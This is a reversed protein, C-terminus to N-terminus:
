HLVTKKLEVAAFNDDFLTFDHFNPLAVYRMLTRKNNVLRVDRRSRKSMLLKGYLSNCTLKRIDREIASATTRRKETNFHIFPALWKEQRFSVGRKIFFTVGLEAYLKLTTGHVVYNQKPSFDLILKKASSFPNFAAHEKQRSSFCAIPPVKLEPAPPYDSLIEHLMANDPIYLNCELMYGKTDDPSLTHVDFNEIEEHSMWRYDGVPLPGSMIKGYLNNADWYTIYSSPQDSRFSPLEKNNARVCRHSCFSVGGRISSEIMRYMEPDTILELKQGTMLLAAELALGPLSFFATAELGYYRFTKARFAEFVCTLILVNSTLYLKVYDGFNKCAFLRFVNCAHNYEEDSVGKQTLDNFFKSRFLAKLSSMPVRLIHIRSFTKKAFHRFKKKERQM